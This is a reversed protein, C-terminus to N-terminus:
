LQHCCETLGLIGFMRLTGELGIGGGL